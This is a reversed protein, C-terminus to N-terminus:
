KKGAEAPKAATTSPNPASFAEVALEIDVEDALVANGVVVGQNDVTKNWVIGFDKRNVTTKATFGVRTGMDRGEVTVKGMGLMEADLTVPKTVGRITLDGLVQFRNGKGRVVKTSQFTILPHKEVWFFDEGRLHDDRRQNGTFVSTDRITVQVASAVVNKPDYVISGEFDSFSGHTKSFFHRVGFGVQSHSRDIKYTQPEAAAMGALSVLALAALVTPFTRRM